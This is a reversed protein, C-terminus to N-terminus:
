WGFREARDLRDLALNKAANTVACQASNHSGHLHRRLGEPYTFGSALRYFNRAEARCLPCAAYRSGGFANEITVVKALDLVKEIAVGYWAYIADRTKLTSSPYLAEHLDPEVLELITVRAMALDSELERIRQELPSIARMAIVM